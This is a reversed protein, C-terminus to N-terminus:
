QDKEGCKNIKKKSFKFPTTWCRLYSWRLVVDWDVGLEVVESCEKKKAGVRVFYRYSYVDKIWKRVSYVSFTTSPSASRNSRWKGEIRVKQGRPCSAIAIVNPSDKSVYVYLLWDVFRWKRRQGKALCSNALVLCHCSWIENRWRMWRRRWRCAKVDGIWLVSLEENKM